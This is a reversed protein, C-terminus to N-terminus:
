GTSNEHAMRRANFFAAAQVYPLIDLGDGILPAAACVVLGTFRQRM